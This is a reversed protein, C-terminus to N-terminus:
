ERLKDCQPYDAPDCEGYRRVLRCFSILMGRIQFFVEESQCHECKYGLHGMVKDYAMFQVGNECNDKAKDGNDQPIFVFDAFSQSKGKAHCANGNGQTIVGVAYKHYEYELCERVQRGVSCDHYENSQVIHEIYVIRVGAQGNLYKGYHGQWEYVEHGICIFFLYMHRLKELFTHEIVNVVRRM